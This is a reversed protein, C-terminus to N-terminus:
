IFDDPYMRQINALARKAGAHTYTDGIALSDKERSYTSKNGRYLVTGSIHDVCRIVYGKEM